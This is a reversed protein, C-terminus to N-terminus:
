ELVGEKLEVRRWSSPLGVHGSARWVVEELAAVGQELDLLDREKGAQREKGGEGGVGRERGWRRKAM